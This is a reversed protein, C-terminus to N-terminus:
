QINLDDKLPGISRQPTKYLKEETKNIVVFCNVITEGGMGVHWSLIEKVQEYM